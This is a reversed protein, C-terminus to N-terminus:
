PTAAIHHMVRTGHACIGGYLACFLATPFAGHIFAVLAGTACGMGAMILFIGIRSARHRPDRAHIPHQRM